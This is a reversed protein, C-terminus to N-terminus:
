EERRIHAFIAWYGAISEIQVKCHRWFGEWCLLGPLWFVWLQCLIQFRKKMSHLKWHENLLSMWYGLGAIRLGQEKLLPIIEKGRWGGVRWRSVWRNSGNDLIRGSSLLKWDKWRKWSEVEARIRQGRCKWNIWFNREHSKKGFKSGM